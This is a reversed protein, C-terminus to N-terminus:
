EKRTNFSHSELEICIPLDFHLDLSVIHFENHLHYHKYGKGDNRTCLRSFAEPLDGIFAATQNIM